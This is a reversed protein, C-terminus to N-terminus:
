PYYVPDPLSEFRLRIHTGVELSLGTTEPPAVALEVFDAMPTTPMPKAGYVEIYQQRYRYFIKSSFNKKRCYEAATLGLEYSESVMKFIKARDYQKSM